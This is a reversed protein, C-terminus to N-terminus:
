NVAQNFAANDKAMLEATKKDLGAIELEIAAAFPPGGHKLLAANQSEANPGFTGTANEIMGWVNLGAGAIVVTFRPMESDHYSPADSLPRGSGPRSKQATYPLLAQVVPIWASLLYHTSSHRSALLRRMAGLMAAAGAQRDKGKWPSEDRQWRGGTLQNYRSAPNVQAQIILAILPIDAYKPNKALEGLPGFTAKEYKRRKDRTLRKGSKIYVPNATVALEADIRGITVAGPMMANKTNVAIWYLTTNVIQAPTRNSHLAAIRAVVARELGAQNWFIEAM